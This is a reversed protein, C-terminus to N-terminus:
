KFIRHGHVSDTCRYMDTCIQVYRRKVRNKKEGPQNGVRSPRETETEMRRWQPPGFTTALLAVRPPCQAVDLTDVLYEPAKAM